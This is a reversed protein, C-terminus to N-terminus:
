KPLDIPRSTIHSEHLRYALRRLEEADRHVVALALDYLAPPWDEVAEFDAVLETRAARVDALADDLEAKPTSEPEPPADAGAVQPRYVARDLAALHALAGLVSREGPLHIAPVDAPLRAFVPGLAEAEAILYRLQDLLAARHQDRASESM